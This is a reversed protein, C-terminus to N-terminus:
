LCTTMTPDCPGASVFIDVFSGADLTTGAVPNTSVVDYLPVTDSYVFASAPGIQLGLLQLDNIATVYDVGTFDPVVAPPLANPDPGLSIVISVTSGVTAEQSAAPSQSMIANMPVTPSYDYFEEYYLGLSTLLVEASTVDTGVLNPIEVEPVPGLSVSVDVTQGRKLTTGARLAQDYVTGAPYIAAADSSLYQYDPVYVLRVTEVAARAAADQQGVLAPVTVLISLADPPIIQVTLDPVGNIATAVNGFEDVAVNNVLPTGDYPNAIVNNFFDWVMSYNSQYLTTQYGGGRGSGGCRTWTHIVGSITRDSNFRTIYAVPHSGGCWHGGATLYPVPLPAATAAGAMALLSIAILKRMM